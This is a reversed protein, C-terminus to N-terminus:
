GRGSSRRRSSRRRRRGTASSTTPRSRRKRSWSPAWTRSSTASTSRAPSRSATTPSWRPAPSRRWSSTAGRRARADVEGGRRAPRSGLAVPEPSGRRIAPGQGHHGGPDPPPHQPSRFSSRGAGSRAPTSIPSRRSAGRRAPLDQHAPHGQRGARAGDARRARQLHRRHQRHHQARHLDRRADPHRAHRRLRDRLLLRRAPDDRLGRERRGGRGRLRPRRRCGRRRHPGQGRRRAQRRRGRDPHAGLQGALKLAAPNRDVVIVNAATLAALCQIGIHGLGGAGIM